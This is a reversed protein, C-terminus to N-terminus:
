LSSPLLSFFVLGTTASIKERMDLSSALCAPNRFLPRDSKLRANSRPNKVFALFYVNKLGFNM